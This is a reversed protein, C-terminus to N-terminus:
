EEWQEPPDSEHYKKLDHWEQLDFAIWLIVFALIWYQNFFLLICLNVVGLIKPIKADKKTDQVGDSYGKDYWYRNENRKM